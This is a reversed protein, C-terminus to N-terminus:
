RVIISYIKKKDFDHFVFILYLASYTSTDNKCYVLIDMVDKETYYIDEYYQVDRSMYIIVKHNQWNTKIVRHHYILILVKFNLLIALKIEDNFFKYSIILQQNNNIECM